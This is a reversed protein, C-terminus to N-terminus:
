SPVCVRATPITVLGTVCHQNSGPGSRASVYFGLLDPKLRVCVGGCSQVNGSRWSTPDEDRAIWLNPGRTWNLGDRSTAVYLDNMKSLGPRDGSWVSLLGLFGGGYPAADFNYLQTARGIQETDADSTRTLNSEVPVWPAEITEATYYSRTRTTGEDSRASLIWGTRGRYITSRDGCPPTRGVTTWVTGEPSTQLVLERQGRIFFTARVYSGDDLRWVTSSDRPEPDVLGLKTWEYGDRSEALATGGWYGAMYWLRFRQRDEDWWCGDSFPMTCNGEWLKDPELIPEPYWEPIGWECPDSPTWVLPLAGAFSLFTRRRM